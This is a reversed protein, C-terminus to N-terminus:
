VPTLHYAGMMENTRAFDKYAQLAAADYVVFAKLLEDLMM